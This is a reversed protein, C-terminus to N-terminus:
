KALVVTIDPSQVFSQGDSAIVRIFLTHTGESLGRAPMSFEFGSPEYISDKLHTAVDPRPVGYRAAYPIGDIVIDVNSAPKKNTADVAWGAVMLPRSTFASVTNGPSTVSGVLDVHFIGGTQLPLLNQSVGRAPIIEADRKRPVNRYVDLILVILVTVALLAFVFPPVRRAQSEAPPPVAPEFEIARAALFVLFVSTPWQQILLRGLSSDILGALPNHQSFMYVAWYGCASVVLTM